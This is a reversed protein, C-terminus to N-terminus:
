LVEQPTTPRATGSQGPPPGSGLADAAAPVDPHVSGTARLPQWVGARTLLDRVPGRVTALHLAVGHGALRENLKALAHAGDADADSIASADLVLAELGPRRAALDTLSDELRQANAFYLPGDVRVVAVRPDVILGAYRSVNRYLHTGPVRGLEALHPRATRWLFVVLSVAVGAALGPEVGFLLTGVFTVGLTLGDAKRTRWAAAAGARDVLGLVAVVVIAGLVASPLHYFTPTLLIATLAVIGATVVTAVPTRAGAQFNVASRSFGGAVPFSQFLGASANAAGVAVLEFNSDIRQGARAALAKAVAIGEMYAVLAIAVAAPLLAGIDATTLAPLAPLPLGSPVETLIAVGRGGLGAFASVVTVGAVVLLAGPVRPAYRRLLLLGAISVVSVVITLGHATTASEWVSVMIAPFTEAREAQLGLLAKLQSAAIVIAAASTFGSLVSHSLFNVLVGLRLLGMALQIAGVLLALLAALAAYRAPDGAALPALAASTMLATIAVPGVALSGSTGFLAYVVLPVVSAYLGTVPPLGALAAYAMSQPVLMVAVTIGAVLDGRLTPRDYNRLWGLLPVWRALGARDQHIGTAALPSVPGGGRDM